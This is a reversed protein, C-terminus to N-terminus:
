LVERETEIVNHVFKVADELTLAHLHTNVAYYFAYLVNLKYADLEQNIYQMHVMKWTEIIRAIRKADSTYRTNNVIADINLKLNEIM